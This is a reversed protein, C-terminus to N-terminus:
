WTPLGLLNLTATAMKGLPDRLESLAFFLAPIAVLLPGVVAFFKIWDHKTSLESEWDCDHVEPTNRIMNETPHTM